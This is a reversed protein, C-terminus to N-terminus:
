ERNRRLSLKVQDWYGITLAVVMGISVGLLLGHLPATMALLRYFLAPVGHASIYDLLRDFLWQWLPELLWAVFFSGALIWISKSRQM